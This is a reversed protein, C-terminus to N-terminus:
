RRCCLSALPLSLFEFNFECRSSVANGVLDSLVMVCLLVGAREEGFAAAERPM